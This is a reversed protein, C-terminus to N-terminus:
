HFGSKGLKGSLNFLFLVILLYFLLIVSPLQDGGEAVILFFFWGPLLNTLTRINHWKGHKDPHGRQVRKHYIQSPNKQQTILGNYMSPLPSMGPPLACLYSGPASPPQHRQLWISLFHGPLESSPLMMAPKPGTLFQPECIPLRWPHPRKQDNETIEVQVTSAATRVTSSAPRYEDCVHRSVLAMSEKDLFFPPLCSHRKNQLLAGKGNIFLM